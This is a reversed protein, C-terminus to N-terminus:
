AELTIGGLVKAQGTCYWNTGDTDFSVWDGIVAGTSQFTVTTHGTNSPGNDSTTVALENIGNTIIKNADVSTAETIVYNAGSPAAGIIFRCHWGAGVASLPPLKTTFETAHNLYFRKGNDAVTMTETSALVEGLASVDCAENIEATTATVGDLINLEAASATVSTGAILFNAGSEFDLEGGSEVDMSGGSAVVLRDGGQQKYVKPQYTTDAM